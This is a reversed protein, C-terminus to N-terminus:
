LDYIYLTYLNNKKRKDSIMLKVILAPNPYNSIVPDAKNETGAHRLLRPVTLNLEIEGSEVKGFSSHWTNIWSYRALSFFDIPVINRVDVDRV